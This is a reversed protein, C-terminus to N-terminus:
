HFFQLELLGNLSGGEGLDVAYRSWATLSSGMKRRKLTPQSESSTFYGLYAQATSELECTKERYIVSTVTFFHLSHLTEDIFSRGDSLNIEKLVTTQITYQYLQLSVNCTLSNKVTLTQSHFLQLLCVICSRSIRFYFSCLHM